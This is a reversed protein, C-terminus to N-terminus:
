ANAWGIAFYLMWAFLIACGTGLVIFLLGFDWAGERSVRFFMAILAALTFLTPALWWGLVITM